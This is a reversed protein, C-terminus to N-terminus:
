GEGQLCLTSEQIGTYPIHYGAAPICIMALLFRSRVQQQGHRVHDFKLDSVANHYM